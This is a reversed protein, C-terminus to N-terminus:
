NKKQLRYFQMKINRICILTLTKVLITSYYFFIYFCFYKYHMVRIFAYILIRFIFLLPVSRGKSIGIVFPRLMSMNRIVLWLMSLSLLISYFILIFRYAYMYIEIYIWFTILTFIAINFHFYCLSSCNYDWDIYFIHIKIKLPLSLFYIVYADSICLGWGIFYLNMIVFIRRNFIAPSIEWLTKRVVDKECRREWMTKRVVNKEFLLEWLTKRVIDKVTVRLVEDVYHQGWLTM